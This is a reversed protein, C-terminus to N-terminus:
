VVGRENLIYRLTPAGIYCERGVPSTQIFLRPARYSAPCLGEGRGEGSPLPPLLFCGICVLTPITPRPLAPEAMAIASDPLIPRTPKSTFGSRRCATACRASSHAIDNDSSACRTPVTTRDSGLGSIELATTVSSTCLALAGSSIISVLVMVGCTAWSSSAM